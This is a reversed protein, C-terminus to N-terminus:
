TGGQYRVVPKQPTQHDGIIKEMWIMHYWRQFKYGCQYFLGVRKYGLHAHFDASNSTLYEDDVEPLGICAYLNLIGMERLAKEMAEYLKRGMGRRRINWDLYITMECCWDYAARGVFPGAYAYGAVQGDKVVVLYPYREMTKKMRERFAEQSPTEQEFSIATHEVYYSYIELIRAADELTADRVTIM